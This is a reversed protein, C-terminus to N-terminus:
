PSPRHALAKRGLDSVGGHRRQLSAEKTIKVCGWRQHMRVRLAAHPPCSAAFKACNPQTGRGAPRASSFMTPHNECLASDRHNQSSLSITACTRDLLYYLADRASSRLSKRGCAPLFVASRQGVIAVHSCGSEERLLGEVPGYLISDTARVHHFHPRSGQFADRRRPHLSLSSRGPTAGRWYAWGLGQRRDASGHLYTMGFHSKGRYGSRLQRPAVTMAKM